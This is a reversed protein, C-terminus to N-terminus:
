VWGRVKMTELIRKVGVIFAAQRYSLEEGDIERLLAYFANLM